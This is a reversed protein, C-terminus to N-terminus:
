AVSAGDDYPIYTMSWKVNGTNSAACDLKLAGIPLIIGVGPMVIAGANQQDLAVSFPTADLDPVLSLFGGVELGTIDKTACLDVTTGTTPVSKLKTANAQAQIITTVEGLISTLLIRGGTITFLTQVNTQPLAATAKDVKIGLNIQRIQPGAVITSM